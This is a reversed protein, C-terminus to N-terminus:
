GVVLQEVDVGPEPGEQLQVPRDQPLDLLHPGDQRGEQLGPPRAARPAGHAAVHVAQQLPALHPATGGAGFRGPPTGPAGSCSLDM